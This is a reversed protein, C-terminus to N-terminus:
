CERSEDVADASNKSVSLARQKTFKKSTRRLNIFVARRACLEFGSGVDEFTSTSIRPGGSTGNMLSYYKTNRGCLQVVINCLVIYMYIVM